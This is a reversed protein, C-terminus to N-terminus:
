FESSAFTIIDSQNLEHSPTTKCYVNKLANKSRIGVLTNLRITLKTGYIPGETLSFSKLWLRLWSKQNPPPYVVFWM